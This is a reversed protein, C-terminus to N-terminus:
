PTQTYNHDLTERISM